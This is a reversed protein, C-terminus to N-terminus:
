STRIYSTEVMAHAAAEQAQAQRESRRVVMGAAADAGTTALTSADTTTAATFADKYYFNIRCDIRGNAATTAMLLLRPSVMETTFVPLRRDM